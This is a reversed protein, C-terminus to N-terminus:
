GGDPADVLYRSRGWAPTPAAALRRRAEAISPLEDSTAWSGRPGEYRIQVHLRAGIARARELAPAEDAITRAYEGLAHEVRTGVGQHVLFWFFAAVMALLAAGMALMIALLKVFVSGRWFQRGRWSPRARAEAM